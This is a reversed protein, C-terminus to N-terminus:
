EYIQRCVKGDITTTNYLIDNNLVVILDKKMKM